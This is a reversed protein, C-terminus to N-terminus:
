GYTSLRPLMKPSAQSFTQFLQIYIFVTYRVHFKFCLVLPKEILNVELLPFIYLPGKSNVTEDTQTNVSKQPFIIKFTM